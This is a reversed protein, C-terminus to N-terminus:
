PFSPIALSVILFFLAGKLGGSAITFLFELKELEKHMTKTWENITKDSKFQANSVRIHTMAAAFSLVSALLLVIACKATPLFLLESITFTDSDIFNLFSAAVALLSFLQIQRLAREQLGNITSLIRGPTNIQKQANIGPTSACIPCQTANGDQDSCYAGHKVCVYRGKNIAFYNLQPASM